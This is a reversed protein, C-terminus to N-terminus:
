SLCGELNASSTHINSWYQDLLVPSYPARGDLKGGDLLLDDCGAIFNRVVRTTGMERPRPMAASVVPQGAWM